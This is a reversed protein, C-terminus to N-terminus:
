DPYQGNLRLIEGALYLSGSILLKPERGPQAAVAAIADEPGAHATCAIGWRDAVAAFREPPHHDHGPVPLAHIHAIRGAFPHLYADLEKNSLMGIMLELKHGELRESSFFASIAEGAGANHGGDLWAETGKPLPALLPGHDLRQLRAPWHAWLPAAKLAAESVPVVNQHRLMAFALAANHIQHAGPLRPLPTDLRGQDDRYHLRDRYAAADWSEGMAFWHTRNRAAAELMVPFLADAYRQTVLPAGPKAIGAKEAAIERLTTGLFSQHDLGLQAIGCIVPKEIINTADLRGGLGVEVICADAPHESFALFAAATTVEFFSAGIGEAVDLVRSLYHALAEDSILKGSIRIRENFRVLHPSTFVHVTKGDAELAARLFACTSGKGNTGAVHFVPPLARHPNGIRDLLRAIRDLGLIDAGPSLTALRDLQAQVAPDDSVAHDAM